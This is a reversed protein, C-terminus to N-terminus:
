FGLKKVLMNEFEVPGIDKWDNSSLLTLLELEQGETTHNEIIELFRAFKLYDAYCTTEYWVYDSLITKLIWNKKTKVLEIELIYRAELLGNYKYKDLTTQVRVWEITEHTLLKIYAIGLIEDSYKKLVIAVVKRIEV